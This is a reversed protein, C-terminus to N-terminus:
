EGVTKTKVFGPPKIGAGHVFVACNPSIRELTEVLSHYSAHASLPIDFFRINKNKRNIISMLMHENEHIFGVKIVSVKESDILRELYKVSTSGPKLMGSSALIIDYNLIKQSYDMESSALTINRNIISKGLSLQYYETAKGALGDILIKMGNERAVDALLMAVEQARGVAFCPILVKNGAEFQKLCLEVFAREYCKLDVMDSRLGYTSETIFIDVRKSNQFIDDFALGNVTNQDELSFDGTYVIRKKKNWDIDMLVSGRIHGNPILKVSVNNILIEGSEMARAHSLNTEPASIRILDRTTATMYVPVDPLKNISGYHDMHAHSVIVASINSIGLKILIQEIDIKCVNDDRIEAGCDLIITTEGDTVIHISASVTKPEYSYIRIDEDMYVKSFGYSTDNKIKSNYKDWINWQINEFGVVKDLSQPQNAHWFAEIAPNKKIIRGCLESKKASCKDVNQNLEIFSVLEDDYHEDFIRQYYESVEYDEFAVAYEAVHKWYIDYQKCINFWETKEKGFTGNALDFYGLKCLSMMYYFDAAGYMGLYDKAIYYTLEYKGSEYYSCLLDPIVSDCMESYYKEELPTIDKVLM